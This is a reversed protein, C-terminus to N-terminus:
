PAVAAVTDHPYGDDAIIRHQTLRPALRLMLMRRRARRDINPQDQHPPVIRREDPFGADAIIRRREWPVMLWGFWHEWVELPRVLAPMKFFPFGFSYVVTLSFSFAKRIISERQWM